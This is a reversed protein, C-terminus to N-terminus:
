NHNARAPPQSSCVPKKPKPANPTAYGYVEIRHTKCYDSWYPRTAGCKICKNQQGYGISSM